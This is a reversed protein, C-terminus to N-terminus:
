GIQKDSRDLRSKRTTDEYLSKNRVQEFVSPNMSERNFLRDHIAAIIDDNELMAMLVALKDEKKFDELECHPVRNRVCVNKRIDEVCEIFFLSMENHLTVAKVNTSLLQYNRRKLRGVESEFRKRLLDIHKKESLDKESGFSRVNRYEM